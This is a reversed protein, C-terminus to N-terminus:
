PARATPWSSALAATLVGPVNAIADLTAGVAGPDRAAVAVSLRGLPNSSRIGVHDLAAITREIEALREPRAQVLIIAPAVPAVTM